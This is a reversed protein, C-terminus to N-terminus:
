AERAGLWQGLLAAVRRPVGRVAGPLGGARVDAPVGTVLALAGAFPSPVAWLGFERRAQRHAVRNRDFTARLTPEHSHEVEALPVYALALGAELVLWGWALDEGFPRSPFPHALVCRRRVMSAVNDHRALRMREAPPLGSGGPPLRRVVFPAQRVAPTWAELAARVLADAGPRPVQRATAGAVDPEAFPAALRTLYDRGRPVADQSLLAVLPARAARVLETRVLGHDFGDRAVDFVRVSDSLEAAREVADDTSGSDALLIEIPGDTVIQDLVARVLTILRPGGNLVPVAVSIAPQAPGRISRETLLSVVDPRAAADM